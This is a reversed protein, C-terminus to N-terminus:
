TLHIGVMVALIKNTEREQLYIPNLNTKSYKLYSDQTIRILLTTFYREWLYTRQYRYM